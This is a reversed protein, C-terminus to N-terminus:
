TCALLRLLPKHEWVTATYDQTSFFLAHVFQVDQHFYNDEHALYSVTLVFSKLEVQSNSVLKWLLHRLSKVNSMQCWSMQCSSSLCPPLHQGLNRSSKLACSGSAHASNVLVHATFFGWPLWPQRTVRFLTLVVWCSRAKGLVSVM